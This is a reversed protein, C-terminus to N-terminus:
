RHEAGECVGVGEVKRTFLLLWVAQSEMASARHQVGQRAKVSQSIIWVWLSWILLTNYLENATVICCTHLSYLLLFMLHLPGLRRAGAAAPFLLM